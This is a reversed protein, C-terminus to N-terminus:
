SSSSTKRRLNWCITLEGARELDYDFDGLARLFAKECDPGHLEICINRVKPLWRSSNNDFIELESGEIDVKLLDIERGGALELLSPIDWGEVTADDERGNSERVQTAWERGDGAGAPLSWSAVDPGPRVRCLRHETEM